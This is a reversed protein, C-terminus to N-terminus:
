MYVEIDQIKVLYGVTQGLVKVPKMTIKKDIQMYIQPIAIPATIPLNMKLPIKIGHIPKLTLEYGLSPKTVIKIDIANKVAKTINVPKNQEGSPLSPVFFEPIRIIYKKRTIAFLVGGLAILKGWKM